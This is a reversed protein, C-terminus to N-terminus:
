VYPTTPLTLHTYSVTVAAVVAAVTRGLAGSAIPRTKKSPHERDKDRDFLDNIIYIAGSFACFLLFGLFSKWVLSLDLFSKSFVVGAFLLLNKTWQKPRVSILIHRITNM